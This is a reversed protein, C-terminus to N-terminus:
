NKLMINKWEYEGTEKKCRVTNKSIFDSEQLGIIVPLWRVM